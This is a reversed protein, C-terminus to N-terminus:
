SAHEGHPRSDRPDVRHALGDAVGAVRRVDARRFSRPRDRCARRCVRRDAVGRHGPRQAGRLLHRPEVSGNPALVCAAMAGSSDVAGADASRLARQKDCHTVSSLDVPVRGRRRAYVSASHRAFHGHETSRHRRGPGNLRAGQRLARAVLRVHRRAPAGRDPADCSYPAAPFGISAALSGSLLFVPSRSRPGGARASRTLRSTRAEAASAFAQEITATPRPGCSRQATTATVGTRPSRETRVPAARGISGAPAPSRTPKQITGILLGAVLLASAITNM